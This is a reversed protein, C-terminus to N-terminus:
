SVIRTRDNPYNVILMSNYVPRVGSHMGETPLESLSIYLLGREEGVGAEGGGGGRPCRIM